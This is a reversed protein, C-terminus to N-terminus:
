IKDKQPAVFVVRVTQDSFFLPIFCFDQYQFSSSSDVLGRSNVDGLYVIVNLDPAWLQFERQWAAMTSLPVVILFPGYVEHVQHLVNLFSIIQITKGLGMEDALIGSNWRCWAQILWNVGDLQYDRLQLSADKGVFTPQEKFQVFKPRKRM